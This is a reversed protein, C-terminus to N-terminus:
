RTANAPPAENIAVHYLGQSIQDLRQNMADLTPQPIKADNGHFPALSAGGRTMMSFDKLDQATYCGSKIQAIVHEVTPTMNWVPGTVVWEPALANQDSLNGFVFLKQEAAAEIVGAREAYLVDAGAAIQARAARGAAPLDLWSNLFTVEVKAEPNTEAVGATFANVLRNVEAVPFGAVVGITNSETLGGALMGCLYAAEHIWDDFVSLNPLSPGLGSGFVFPLDPYDGAVRRVAEENGFADGFIAAPKQQEAVERLIREMEGSYGIDDTYEYQIKDEAAARQLAQHIVGAWPEEIPTAYVAYFLPLRGDGSTVTAGPAPQELTTCGNVLAAALLLVLILGTTRHSM